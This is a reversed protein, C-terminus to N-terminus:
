RAGDNRRREGTKDILYVAAAVVAVTGIVFLSVILSLPM